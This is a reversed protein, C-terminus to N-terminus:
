YNLYQKMRNKAEQLDEFCIRILINDKKAIMYDECVWINEEIEEVHNMAEKFSLSPVNKESLAYNLDM